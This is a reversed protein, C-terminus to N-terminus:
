YFGHEVNPNKMLGQNPLGAFPMIMEGAWNLTLIFLVISLMPKKDPLVEYSTEEQSSGPAVSSIQRRFSYHLM